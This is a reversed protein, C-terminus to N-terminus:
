YRVTQFSHLKQNLKSSHNPKHSWFTNGVGSKSSPTPRHSPTISIPTAKDIDVNEIEQIKKNM